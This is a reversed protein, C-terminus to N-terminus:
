SQLRCIMAMYRDRMRAIAEQAPNATHTAGPAQALQAEAEDFNEEGLTEVYEIAHHMGDRLMTAEDAKSQDPKPAAPKFRHRLSRYIFNLLGPGATNHSQSQRLEPVVCASHTLSSVVSTQRYSALLQSVQKHGLRIM